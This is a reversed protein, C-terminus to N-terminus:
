CEQWRPQGTQTYVKRWRPLYFEETWIDSVPAYVVGGKDEALYAGWWSYTSNAVIHNRCEQMLRFEDLDSLGEVLVYEHFDFHKKVFNKDDAFVFLSFDGVERQMGELAQRYFSDALCVNNKERDYDTRRIHLSVSARGDRHAARIMGCYEGAKAGPKEKLQFQRRIDDYFEDFYRHSQWFGRYFAPNDRYVTMDLEMPLTENVVGYKHMKIKCERYKRKLLASNRKGVGLVYDIKEGVFRRGFDVEFSDIQYHRLNGSYMPDLIFQRGTRKYLGYGFAYQFLQNGLGDSIRIINPKSGSNGTM